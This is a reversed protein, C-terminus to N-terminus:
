IGRAALAADLRMEMFDMTRGLTEFDFGKALALYDHALNLAAMVALREPVPKKLSASLAQIKEDLFQAAVLLAEEQGAPCAIHYDQGLLSVEISEAAESM